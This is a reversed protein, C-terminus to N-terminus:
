GAYLYAPSGLRLRLYLATIKIWLDGPAAGREGMFGRGRTAGGLRLRLRVVVEMWLNVCILVSEVVAAQSPTVGSM